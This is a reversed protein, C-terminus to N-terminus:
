SNGFPWFRDKASSVTAFTALNIERCNIGAVTEEKLTNCYSESVAVTIYCYSVAVRWCDQYSVIFEWFCCRSLSKSKLEVVVVALSSKVYRSVVCFM